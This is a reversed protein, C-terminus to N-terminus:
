SHPAPPICKHDDDQTPPVPACSLDPRPAGEVHAAVSLLPPGVQLGAKGTAALSIEFRVRRDVLLFNIASGEELAGERDTIVLVPQVGLANVLAHLEGTYVQGVYLMQAGAAEDVSHIKRVQAPLNKISHQTLFRSLEDAVADSDLIAITFETHRLAAPPWDVYGTFRYLFAAKVADAQYVEASQAATAAAAVCL